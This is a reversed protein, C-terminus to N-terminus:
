WFDGCCGADLNCGAAASGEYTGLLNGNVSCNCFVQGNPEPKCEASVDLGNCVGDCSCSGDSSASCGNEVCSGPGGDCKTFEQFAAECAPGPLNCGAPPNLAICELVAQLAGACIGAAVVSQACDNVCSPGGPDCGLKAMVDCFQQCATTPDVTSTTTVTTTTTVTSTTGTTTGTTTGGSGGTGDDPAGDVVVSGGCAAIGVLVLAALRTSAFHTRM